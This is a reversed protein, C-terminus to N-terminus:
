LGKDISVGGRERISILLIGVNESLRVFVFGRNVISEFV